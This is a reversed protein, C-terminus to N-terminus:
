HQQEANTWLYKVSCAPSPVVSCTCERVFLPPLSHWWSTGASQLWPRQSGLRPSPRMWSSSTLVCLQVMETYCFRCPITNSRTMVQERILKRGAAVEDRLGDPFAASNELSQQGVRHLLQTIYRLWQNNRHSHSYSSRGSRESQGAGTNVRNLAALLEERDFRQGGSGRRVLGAPKDSQLM